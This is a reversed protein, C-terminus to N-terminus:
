ALKNNFSVNRSLRTGAFDKNEIQNNLFGGPGTFEMDGIMAPQFQDEDDDLHLNGLKNKTAFPKGFSAKPQLITKNRKGPSANELEGSKKSITRKLGSTTSKM